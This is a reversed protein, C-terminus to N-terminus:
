DAFEKTDYDSESNNYDSDENFWYQETEPTDAFEPGLDLFKKRNKRPIDEDDENYEPEIKFVNYVIHRQKQKTLVLRAWEGESMKNLKIQVCLGLAKHELNSKVNNLLRLNLAYKKDDTTTSFTLINKQLLKLKYDKVALVKVELVIHSSTQHWLVEPTLTGDGDKVPLAVMPTYGVTPSSSTLAAKASSTKHNNNNNNNSPPLALLKSPKSQKPMANQKMEKIFGDKNTIQIDDDENFGDFGGNTNQFTSDLAGTTSANLSQSVQEELQAGDNEEEGEEGDSDGRRMKVIMDILEVELAETAIIDEPDGSILEDVQEDLIFNLSVIENGDELYALVDYIQRSTTNTATLKAQAAVKNAFSSCPHYVTSKNVARVYWNKYFDTGSELVHDDVVSLAKDNVETSYPYKFGFLSCEIAQFPLKLIMDDRLHKLEDPKRLETNGYDVFFCEVYKLVEDHANKDEVINTVLVRCMDTDEQGSDPALYYRGIKIEGVLPYFPRKITTLIEAHLDSLQKRFKELNIYINDPRHGYSFHALNWAETDMFAWQPTVQESLTEKKNKVPTESVEPVSLNREVCLQRLRKMPEEDWEGWFNGVMENRLILTTLHVDTKRLYRMLRVDDLWICNGLQLQVVGTYYHPTSESTATPTNTTHKQLLNQVDSRIKMSFANDRGPPVINAVHVEVALHPIKKISKPMNFLKDTVIRVTNGDDVMFAEAVSPLHTIKHTDIIKMIRCRRLSKDKDELIYCGGVKAGDQPRVRNGEMQLAIQMEVVLEGYERDIEWDADAAKGRGRGGGNGGVCRKWDAASMLRVYYTVADVIALLRFRVPGSKPLHGYKQKSRDVRHDLMHRQQCPTTPTACRGTLKLNACLPTTPAQSLKLKEHQMHAREAMGVFVDPITAGMEKFCNILRSMQKTCNNDIYIHIHCAAKNTNPILPSSYSDFMCRFRQTFMKWSDSPLSFHVLTTANRISFYKMLSPDDCLLIKHDGPVTSDWEIEVNAIEQGEMEVTAMTYSIAHSKFIDALEIIESVNNCVVVTKYLHHNDKLLEKLHFSKAVSDVLHVHAKAKGYFATEMPDAICIFPVATLRTLFKNIHGTWHESTMFLQVSEGFTRKDLMATILQEIAAMEKQFRTLLIDLDELILINLSKVNMVQTSILKCLIIPTTVLIDIKNKFQDVYQKDLPPIALAIHLRQNDSCKGVLKCYLDYIEDAKTSGTCLIIVTPERERGWKERGSPRVVGDLIASAVAPVHGLTKGTAPGGVLLVHEGDTAAPWGYIQLPKCDKYGHKRLAEVVPPIFGPVSVLTPAPTPLLNCHVLVPPVKIRKMRTGESKMSAQTSAITEIVINKKHEKDSGDSFLQEPKVVEVVETTVDVPKEKGIKSGGSGSARKVKAAKDDIFQLGMEPGLDDCENWPECKSCHCTNRNMYKQVQAKIAATVVPSTNTNTNLCPPSLTQPPEPESITQQPPQNTHSSTTSSISSERKELIRREECKGIIVNDEDWSDYAPDDAVFEQSQMMSSSDSELTDNVSKKDSDCANKVVEDLKVPTQDDRPKYTGDTSHRVNVPKPKDFSSSETIRNVNNQDLSRRQQWTKQQYTKPRADFQYSDASRRQQHYFTNVPRDYSSSDTSYNSSRIAQSGLGEFSSRQQRRDNKNNSQSSRRDNPINDASRRGKVANDSQKSSMNYGAPILNGYDVAPKIQNSSGGTSSDSQRWDGEAKGATLASNDARPSVNVPTKPITGCQNIAEEQQINPDTVNLSCKYMQKKQLLVQVRSNPSPKETKVSTAVSTSQRSSDDSDITTSSNANATNLLWSKIERTSLGVSPETMEEGFRSTKMSLVDHFMVSIGDDVESSIVKKFKESDIIAFQKEVLEMTLSTPIGAKDSLLLQGYEVGKVVNEQIFVVSNAESILTQALKISGQTWQRTSIAEQKWSLMDFKMETPAINNLGGQIAFPPKSAMDLAIPFIRETTLPSGEDILWCIYSKNVIERVEARKFNGDKVLITTGVEAKYNQNWGVNALSQTWSKELLLRKDEDKKRRFWFEYPNDFKTVIVISKSAM